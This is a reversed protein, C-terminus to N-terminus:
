LYKGLSWAGCARRRQLDANGSQFSGVVAYEEAKRGQALSRAMHHRRGVPGEWIRTVTHQGTRVSGPLSAAGVRAPPPAATAKKTLAQRQGGTALGGLSHLFKWRWAPM